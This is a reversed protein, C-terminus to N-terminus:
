QEAGRPIIIVDSRHLGLSIPDGPHLSDQSSSSDTGFRFSLNHQESISALAFATDGQFVFERIVGPFVITKESDIVEDRIVFLREPRIVLSWESSADGAHDRAILHDEFQLDGSGNQTLPLMTSEGIFDAVFANAPQNYIVHPTDVQALKGENIVAIRDSMTLAERQDHTVYVTTVGLQEHLHKLEIQMQERLKKDLASLPEDMLLIRPRFVFARALAVRQRQGGSLQDIDRDGLGTLQVTALAADVREICEAGGVGRLKLPFAINEAVTMHPFLAYSQFVMGVGRQHPAKLIMEEDGFRISGADPRNFGAIAMLLTTKGSGSPGLLTLFEGSKIDLDVSDLAYMKGYQKTLGQIKIPLATPKQSPGSDPKPNSDL